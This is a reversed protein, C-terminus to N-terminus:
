FLGDLSSVKKDKKAKQKTGKQYLISRLTKRGFQNIEDEPFTRKVNYLPILRMIRYSRADIEGTEKGMGIEHVKKLYNM